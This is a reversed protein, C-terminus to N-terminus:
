AHYGALGHPSRQWASLGNAGAFTNTTAIRTASSAADVATTRSTPDSMTNRGRRRRRAYMRVLARVRSHDTPTRTTISSRRGNEALM